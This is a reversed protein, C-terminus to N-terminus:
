AKQFVVNETTESAVIQRGFTALKLATQINKQGDIKIVHFGFPTKVVGMDGKKGEFVFDRFGPTMRTYNFWDYFGGKQASGKDSSFDKALKAFKSRNRKVVNLISDALSKAEDETRTVEAATRQSGVFPILIHSAKASDPM